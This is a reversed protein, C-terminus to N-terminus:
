VFLCVFLFPVFLRLMCLLIHFFFVLFNKHTHLLFYAFSHTRCWVYVYYVCCVTALIQFNFFYLPSFILGYFVCVTKLYIFLFVYLMHRALYICIYLCICICMCRTFAVIFLFFFFSFLVIQVICLTANILQYM